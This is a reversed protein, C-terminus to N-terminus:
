EEGIGKFFQENYQVREDHPRYEKTKEHHYYALEKNGIQWYCVCLQLHPYWTSYQELQFGLSDSVDAEIALRYWIIAKYFMNKMKYMDGLRCSVEPRPIDYVFTRTLAEIEESPKKLNRYCDALNICARINDELWGEKCDLFKKYQEVAKQFEGHDRLENAYYFTDRASFADGKELRKEYINLNRRSASKSSNQKRHLVAIDSHVIKGGVALYEHVAGYWRFNNSRKVLRHRRYKFAPKGFEDVSVVTFMSVADVSDDM